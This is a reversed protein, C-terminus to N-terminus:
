YVYLYMIRCDYGQALFIVRLLATPNAISRRHSSAVALQIRTHRPMAILFPHVSRPMDVTTLFCRWSFRPSYNRDAVGSVLKYIREHLGPRNFRFETSIANRQFRRTRM